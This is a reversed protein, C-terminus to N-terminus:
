DGLEFAAGLMEKWHKKQEETLIGELQKAHDNRAQMVKPRIEEPNGGAQAQKILGEITKQLDQVIAMFKMQQEQTIKLEKRVYENGLAFGGEQQLRLQRLRNLQEPQLVEQEHKTLKELANKRHEALMKEREPGEADKLSDLFPGTEMIQEMAYRMLKDRQEESVKLEDLVKDRFIIFPPGLAEAMEKRNQEPLEQAAAQPLPLGALAVVAFALLDPRFPVRSSM